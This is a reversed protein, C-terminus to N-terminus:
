DGYIGVINGQIDFVLDATGVEIWYYQEHTPNGYIGYNHNIGARDLMEKMTEYDNM